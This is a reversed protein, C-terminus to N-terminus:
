MYIESENEIEREKGGDKAKQRKGERDIYEGRM